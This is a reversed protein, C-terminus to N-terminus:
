ADIAGFAKWTGPTGATVCVWGIKGSAAPSNTYVVSGRAYTGTSPEATGWSRSPWVAASTSNTYVIGGDRVESGAAFHTAPIIWGNINGRLFPKPTSSSPFVQYLLSTITSGTAKVTNDRIYFEAASTTANVYIGYKIRSTANNDIIQNGDIELGSITATLVVIGSRFAETRATDLTSGPNTLINGCIRSTAVSGVSLRIAAMPFNIVTNDEIAVNSMAIDNTSFMGIGISSNNDTPTATQLPAFISNDAIRLNRVPLDGNPDFMIGGLAVGSAILSRDAVYIQNGTINMGDIGFASVQGTATQSYPLIGIQCNRITNNAVINAVSESSVGTPIIGIMYGTITNESVVWQSGHTEIATRGGNSLTAKAQFTNGSFVGIAGNFYITSHDFDVSGGGVDYFKCGTVHVDSITAGNAVITNTSQIDKFVCDQIRIHQGAYIRIAFRPNGTLQGTSTITNNTGNQDITLNKITVNSLDAGATAGSFITEYNGASDALKITAGNGDITINPYITLAVGGTISVIYTEDSKLWIMGGGVSNAANIALQIAARDDAVGDGRAGYDKPNFVGLDFFQRRTAFDSRLNAVLEPNRKQM